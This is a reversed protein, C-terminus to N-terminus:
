KVKNKCKNLGNWYNLKNYNQRLSTANGTVEGTTNETASLGESPSGAWRASSRSRCSPSFEAPRSCFVSMQNSDLYMPQTVEMVSSWALHPRPPRWCDSFFCRWAVIPNKKVSCRRKGWKDKGETGGTKQQKTFRKQWLICLTAQELAM